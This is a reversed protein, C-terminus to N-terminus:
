DEDAVNYYLDESALLKKEYKRNNNNDGFNINIDHQILNHWIQKQEKAIIFGEERDVYRDFSTLFGFDKAVILNPNFDPKLQELTMFCNNHRRGSVVIGTSVNKPQEKYVNGDKYWIAACLIYEERIKNPIM